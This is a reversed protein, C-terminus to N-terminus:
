SPDARLHGKRSCVQDPLYSTLLQHDEDVEWEFDLMRQAAKVPPPWSPFVPNVSHERQVTWMATAMAYAPFTPCSVFKPRPFLATLSATVVLLRSSYLSSQVLYLQESTFRPALSLPLRARTEAFRPCIACM